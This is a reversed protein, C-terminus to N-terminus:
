NRWYHSERHRRRRLGKLENAKLLPVRRYSSSVYAAKEEASILCAPSSVTELCMLFPVFSIRTSGQLLKLFSAGVILGPSSELCSTM